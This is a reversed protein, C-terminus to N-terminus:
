QTVVQYGAKVALTELQKQIEPLLDVIRKRQRNVQSVADNLVGLSDYRPENNQPSIMGAAEKYIPSPDNAYLPNAATLKGWADQVPVYAPWDPGSGLAEISTSLWAALDAALKPNRTHSSVTWAGGGQADVVGKAQDAWKPLLAVGLQHEATQYYVSDPKGGFMYEGYWAAAPMMLLMNQRAAKVFANAFPNDSSLTGNALMHDVLSAARICAPDALNIRVQDPGTVESFPCGSPTFFTRFGWGDGFSGMFYGPHETAVRDSLAQYEEWSTPVTYGFLDILPKNYYLVMQALDYRLCVLKGDVSCADLSGPAFDKITEAPVWDKLDLPFHHDADSVQLILNPEAFVVDPWGQNAKNSQLVKAPFQGRDVIATVILSAKDPHAKTYAEVAPQRVEDIWVTIKAQDDYPQQTAAQPTSTAPAAVQSSPTAKGAICATLVLSTTLLIISLITRKKRRM